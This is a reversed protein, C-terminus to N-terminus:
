ALQQVIEFRSREISGPGEVELPKEDAWDAEVQPVSNSM